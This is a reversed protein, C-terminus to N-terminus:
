GGDNFCCHTAGCLIKGSSCRRLWGGPGVGCRQLHRPDKCSAKRDLDAGSSAIASMNERIPIRPDRPVPIKGRTTRRRGSAHRTTSNPSMDQVTSIQPARFRSKKNRSGNIRSRMELV